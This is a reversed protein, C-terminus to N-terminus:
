IITSLALIFKLIRIIIRIITIIISIKSFFLVVLLLLSLVSVPLLCLVICGPIQRPVNRSILTMMLSFGLPRRNDHLTFCAKDFSYKRIVDEM